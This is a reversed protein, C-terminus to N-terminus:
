FGRQVECYFRRVDTGGEKHVIKSEKDKKNIEKIKIKPMHGAISQNISGSSQNLVMSEYKLFFSQGMMRRTPM